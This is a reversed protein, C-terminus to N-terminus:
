KHHHVLDIRFRFFWHQVPDVSGFTKYLNNFRCTFLTSLYFLHHGWNKGKSLLVLVFKSGEIHILDLDSELHIQIDSIM